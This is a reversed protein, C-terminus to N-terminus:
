CFLTSPLLYFTTPSLSLSYHPHNIRSTSSLFIVTSVDQTAVLFYLSFFWATLMFMDKAALLSDVISSLYILVLGVMIQVPIVWSKRRGFSPLYLSDVIPAWLLKISYPWSVLAFLAQESLSAGSGALLM